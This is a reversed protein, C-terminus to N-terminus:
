HPPWSHPAINGRGKVGTHRYRPLNIKSESLQGNTTPQPSYWYSKLIYGFRWIPYIIFLYIPFIHFSVTTARNPYSSHQFKSPPVSSLSISWSQQYGPRSRLRSRGFVFCHTGPFLHVTCGRLITCTMPIKRFFLAYYVKRPGGGVNHLRLKHTATDSFTYLRATTVFNFEHFASLIDVWFIMIFNDRFGNVTVTWSLFLCM